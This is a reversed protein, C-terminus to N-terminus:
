GRAERNGDIWGAWPLFPYAPLAGAAIDRPAAKKRGLAAAHHGIFM